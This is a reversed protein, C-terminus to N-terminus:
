SASRMWSKLIAAAEAPRSAVMQGIQEMPQPLAQAIPSAPSALAPNSAPAALAPTGGEAPAALPALVQKMLPRAVFILIILAVIVFVAVEAMRMMDESSPSFRSALSPEGTKEIEPQEAFRLNVVEIQDGRAKDFGVGIRVLSAIRQLDEDSRPTYAVEGAANKQYAGDVLVAVSLRKIRGAEVTETRTTRSIEYNVTEEVKQSQDRPGNPEAKRQGGPLENAVTVANEAPGSASNQENRTQTSRVVRSDPDYSESTQQVRQNDLDVAVQVRARGRGVVSAVIAEVDAKLRKEHAAQRDAALTATDTEDGGEALLRGGEDILSVRAPKLGDVASAVLHRIARVQAPELEGRVRLIISARPETKDKSFLRREPISLHVRAATVRDITKISRALEGELARLKNVNQVTATATFADTKDFIEYGVSGGGPMGKSALEMRIRAINEQPARIIAGEGALEYKIGKTDLERTIAATEAPSLESFLTVMRPQSVRLMVFAFFGVLTLSVAGMAALRQPGLRQIMQLISQVIAGAQRKAAARSSFRRQAIKAPTNTLSPNIEAVRFLFIDPVLGSICGIIAIV